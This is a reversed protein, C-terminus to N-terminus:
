AKRKSGMKELQIFIAEESPVFGSAVAYETHLQQIAWQRRGALYEKEKKEVAKKGLEILEAQTLEKAM